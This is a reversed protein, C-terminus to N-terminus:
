TLSKIGIDRRLGPISGFPPGPAPYALYHLRRMERRSHSISELILGLALTLFALLMLGTALLATPLRPVLGTRIFEMVVPLGFGLSLLTLLLALVGFLFAPKEEKLLKLIIRGIRIGDRYTRLKSQTGATRAGYPTKMDGTKMRMELAHVTLETEIEFGASLAPFSKVFRRSFIRYGSLMDKVPRGFLFAVTKTLARNGLRHGRRYAEQETEKRIGTVMDFNNELLYKILRPADQARYTGDGDALVYIDADIDAFMRRVVNGKGQFPESQVIAGTRRAIMVTDDTSNNDYVYVTAEPIAHQFDKIVDEIATAENFCPLLVVVRVPHNKPYYLSSGPIAM